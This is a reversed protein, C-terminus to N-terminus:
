SVLKLLKWGLPLATAALALKIVDGLMFPLLGLAVTQAGAFISLWSLGFGYIAANGILMALSTSVVHRDWGREALRGTVYAAAIFGVLYGGTPGLVYALGSAGSALVPLGVLGLILYTFLSLAGRRSGLLAGTLLVALTQGTIPIPSFPLRISIQAVLAVLLSGGLILVTDYVLAARRETPRILDAYTASATDAGNVVNTTQLNM